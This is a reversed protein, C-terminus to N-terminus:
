NHTASEGPWSAARALNARFTVIASRLQDARKTKPKTEALLKQCYEIAEEWKSKSRELIISSM